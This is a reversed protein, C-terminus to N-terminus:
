TRNRFVLVIYIVVVTLALGFWQVAYAVHRDAGMGGPRWERVYGDPAAPDLLLQYDRLPVGLHASAETSTPFLLRRPWPADRVPPGAALAIGPRPLWEIRGTIERTGSGVRIDPLIRRDGDAPVWGRNVLVTGDPTAFPTLVQYGPQREHSINDLLLQHDPDYQGTLRVTRYRYAEAAESAVLQQLAPASAGSAFRAELDRKVAARDLQWFGATTGVAVGALTLLVAWWSGPWRRTV